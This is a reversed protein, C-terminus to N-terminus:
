ADAGSRTRRHVGGCHLPCPASSGAGAASRSLGNRASTGGSAALTQVALAVVSLVALPAVLRLTGRGVSAEYDELLEEADHTAADFDGANWDAIIRGLTVDADLGWMGLSSLLGRDGVDLRLAGAVVDLAERQEALLAWADDTHLSAREFEAQVYPGIELDVSEAAAIM